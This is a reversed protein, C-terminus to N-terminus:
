GMWCTDRLPHPPQGICRVRRERQRRLSIGRRTGASYNPWRWRLHAWQHTWAPTNVKSPQGTSGRSSYQWPTWALHESWDETLTTSVPWPTADM